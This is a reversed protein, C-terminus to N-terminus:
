LTTLKVLENTILIIINKYTCYRIWLYKQQVFTLLFSSVNKLLFIQTYAM